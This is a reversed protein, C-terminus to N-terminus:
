QEPSLIKVQVAEEADMTYTGGIPLIMIDVKVEKIEQYRM